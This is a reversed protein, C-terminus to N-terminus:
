PFLVNGVCKRENPRDSPRISPHVSLTFVTYGGVLVTQSPIIFSMISFSSCLCFSCALTSLKYLLQVSMKLPFSYVNLVLFLLLQCVLYCFVGYSSVITFRSALDATSYDTRTLFIITLINSYTQFLRSFSILCQFFSVTQCIHVVYYFVINSSSRLEHSFEFMNQFVLPLVPIPLSLYLSIGM